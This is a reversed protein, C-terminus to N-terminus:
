SGRHYESSSNTGPNLNFADAEQYDVDENDDKNGEQHEETKTDKAPVEKKAAPSSCSAFVVTLLGLFIYRM